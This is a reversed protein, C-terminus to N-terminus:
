PTILMMRCGDGGGEGLKSPGIAGEVFRLGVDTSTIQGTELAVPLWTKELVGLRHLPSQRVRGSELLRVTPFGSGVQVERRM